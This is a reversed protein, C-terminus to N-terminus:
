LHIALTFCPLKNSPKWIWTKLNLPTMPARTICFFRDHGPLALVISYSTHSTKSAIMRESVGHSKVIRTVNEGFEDQGVKGMLQVDSGFFAMALGTNAVAGGIHEQANEVNILKRPVILQQIEGRCAEPFVPTIDLCIHGAVVVKKRSKANM